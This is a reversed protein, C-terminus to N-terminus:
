KNPKFMRPITPQKSQQNAKKVEDNKKKVLDGHQRYYLNRLHVPM